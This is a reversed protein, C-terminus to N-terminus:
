KNVVCRAFTAVRARGASEDFWRVIVSDDECVQVHALASVRLEHDAGAFAVVDAALREADKGEAPSLRPFLALAPAPPSYAAAHDVMTAAVGPAPGPAVLPVDSNFPISTVHYHGDACMGRDAHYDGCRECRPFKAKNPEKVPSFTGPCAYRQDHAYGCSHVPFPSPDPM